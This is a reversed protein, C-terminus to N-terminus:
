LTDEALQSVIPIVDSATSGCADAEVERWLEPDMRFPAGGVVIKVPLNAQNLRARLQKVRLASPLMLTSILLIKVEEKEVRRVLSELDMRGYNSVQFGGARLISHVIRLGLLHYDELVAIAMKPHIRSAESTPPLMRVAIEECLRSSMYVQSLSYVGTEWGRGITEMAPVILQEVFFGPSQNIESSAIIRGLAVRDVSLLASVLDKRFMTMDM